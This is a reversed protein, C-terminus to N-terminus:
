EKAYSMYLFDFTKGVEKLLKDDDVFQQRAGNLIMELGAAEAVPVGGVDLYHVLAGM